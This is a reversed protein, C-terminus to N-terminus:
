SPKRGRYCYPFLYLSLFDPSYSSMFLFGDYRGSNLALYQKCTDPSEIVRNKASIRGWERGQGSESFNFLSGWDRPRKRAPGINNPQPSDLKKKPTSKM